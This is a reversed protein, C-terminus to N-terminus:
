ESKTGDEWGEENGDHTLKWWRKRIVDCYHSDLEMMYCKRGLQECAILTSGSGGFLDLVINGFDTSIRIAKASLAIPKQTPHIYENVSDKKQKWISYYDKQELVIKLLKKKKIKSIEENTFNWVSGYRKGKLEQGNNCVLIMEYDTAFTHFLDGIGGGGKDWIVVNTLDYYKKFLEYWKDATKWMTCIYIWGDCFLKIAPFFDLIKDDNMIVDFKDTKQSWNSQYEYGYPPDTFVMDAKQGDMLIAVSGADTSDGCMLRHEGLQYVKGLESKAPKSEDVEPAEDEEIEKDADWDLEVGWQEVDEPEFFEGLTDKDWELDASATANDALAMQRGQESNLSVDTRKVAVIEDGTTEVIRVNDLGIQGASEIVGNGAIINNDKDILISRGAGNERLSKEILSMGYSTHRNFNKDDFKLDSIKAM